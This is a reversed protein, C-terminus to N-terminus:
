AKKVLKVAKVAPQELKAIIAKVAEAKAPVVLLYDREAKKSASEASVLTSALSYDGNTLAIKVREIMGTGRLPNLADTLKGMPVKTCTTEDYVKKPQEAVTPTTMGTMTIGKYKGSFINLLAEATVTVTITTTTNKAM